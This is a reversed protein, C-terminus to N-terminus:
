CFTLLHLSNTGHLFDTITSLVFFKYSRISHHNFRKAVEIRERAAYAGHIKM